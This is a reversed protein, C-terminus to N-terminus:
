RSKTFIISSGTVKEAEGDRGSCYPESFTLYERVLEILDQKM